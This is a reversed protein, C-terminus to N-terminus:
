WEEIRSEYVEFADLRWREVPVDLHMPEKKVSCGSPIVEYNM